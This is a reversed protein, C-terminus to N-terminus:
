VPLFHKVNHTQMFSLTGGVEDSIGVLLCLYLVYFVVDTLTTVMRSQVVQEEHLRRTEDDPEAVFHTTHRTRKQIKLIAIVFHIFQYDNVCLIQEKRLNSPKHAHKIVNHCPSTKQKCLGTNSLKPTKICLRVNAIM